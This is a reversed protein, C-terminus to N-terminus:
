EVSKEFMAGSSLGIDGAYMWFFAASSRILASSSAARM